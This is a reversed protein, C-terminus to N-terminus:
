KAEHYEPMECWAVVGETPLYDECPHRYGRHFWFGAKPGDPNFWVESVMLSRAWPRRWAVLYYGCERPPEISNWQLHTTTQKVAKAKAKM